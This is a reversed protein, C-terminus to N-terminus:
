KIAALIGKLFLNHDFGDESFGLRVIVLKRSPIIFIRQGRHGDCLFLDEPADPLSKSRNLWFQAGYEGKSAAVSTRTYEVWGKPLITDNKWIGNNYYLLGFRAWDRATAYGYSSGVFNGAQDTELIMSSIGIKNFIERYPFEHYNKDNGILTRMIGSLINTTGSSYKWESGPKKQFPVEIAVKYCDDSRYLMNTVSSVDAYDEDWKLGSSMHLLDNITIDRRRDNSWQPIPAVAAISLKGQRSLVGAMANMISKNMSWGWIRTDATIGMESDYKEAVLEGKYLVVVAATGRKDASSSAFADDIATKLRIADIESFVTDKLLDGNPWPIRWAGERRVVPPTFTNKQIEQVSHDGALSCGFGERYVATQKALGWFSTTVSKNEFDITSRTFKVISYNLDVSQVLHPDRGTLFVASAMSKAGYGTAIYLKPYQSKVIIALIVIVMLPISIKRKIM